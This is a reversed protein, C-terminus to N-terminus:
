NHHRLVLVHLMTVHVDEGAPECAAAHVNELMTRKWIHINGPNDCWINKHTSGDAGM